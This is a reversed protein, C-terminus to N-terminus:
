RREEQRRGEDVRRDAGVLRRLDEGEDGEHSSDEHGERGEDGEHSNNEHGEHDEDGEHSNNEHGEHDEDGEHGEGPGSQSEDGKRSGAEEDAVEGSRELLKSALSWLCFFHRLRHRCRAVRAPM